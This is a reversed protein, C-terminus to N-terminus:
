IDRAPEAQARYCWSCPSSEQSWVGIPQDIVGDIGAIVSVADDATGAAAGLLRTGHGCSQAPMHAVSDLVEQRYAPAALEVGDSEHEGLAALM